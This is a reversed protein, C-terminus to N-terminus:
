KEAKTSFCVSAGRQVNTSSNCVTHTLSQTGQKLLCFSHTNDLFSFAAITVMVGVM